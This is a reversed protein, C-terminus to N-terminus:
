KAQELEKSLAYIADILAKKTNADTLAKRLLKNSKLQKIIKLFQESRVTLDMLFESQDTIGKTTYDALNNFKINEEKANGESDEFSVDINPKFRDFVDEISTLGYVLEPKVPANATLKEVMLTRNQQIDAFAESADGKVETGGIGYTQM